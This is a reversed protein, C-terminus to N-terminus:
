YEEIRERINLLEVSFIYIIYYTGQNVSECREKKTETLVIIDQNLRKIEEMIKVNFPNLFVVKTNRIGQINWKGVSLTRNRDQVNLEM